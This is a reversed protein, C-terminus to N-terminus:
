CMNRLLSFRVTHVVRPEALYRDWESCGVPAVDQSGKTFWCGWWEQSEETDEPECSSSPSSPSPSKDDIADMATVFERMYKDLKERLKRTWKREWNENFYALKVRPDLAAAVLYVKSEDSKEYYESMKIWVLNVSTQLNPPLDPNAKALELHSLIHDYAPLVNFLASNENGTDQLLRTDQKGFVKETRLDCTDDEMTSSVNGQMRMTMEWFPYLVKHIEGVERWDEVPMVCDGLKECDKKDLLSDENM